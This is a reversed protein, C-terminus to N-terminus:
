LISPRTRRESHCYRSVTIAMGALGVGVAAVRMPEFAFTFAPLSRSVLWMLLAIVAGVVLPPIKLEVSHLNM